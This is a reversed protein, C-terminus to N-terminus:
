KIIRKKSIVFAMIAFVILIFIFYVKMGYKICLITIFNFLLIVCTSGLSMSLLIFFFRGIRNDLIKILFAKM